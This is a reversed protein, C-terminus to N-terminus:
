IILELIEEYIGQFFEHEETELLKQIKKGLEIKAQFRELGEKALNILENKEKQIRNNQYLIQFRKLIELLNLRYENM